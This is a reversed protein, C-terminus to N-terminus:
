SAAPSKTLSKSINRWLVKCERLLKISMKGGYGYSFNYAYYAWDCEAIVREEIAEYWYLINKDDNKICSIIYETVEEVRSRITLMKITMRLFNSISWWQKPLYEEGKEELVEKVICGGKTMYKGLYNEASKKVPVRKYSVWSVKLPPAGTELTSKYLTNNLIRIWIELVQTDSIVWEKTNKKRIANYVYHLHLGVFGQNKWRKPQIETVAVYHFIRGHRKYERKLEQFFKRVLESWNSCIYKEHQEGLRPLTVTSFQTYEGYRKLRREVLYCGNRVMKKGLSTIGNLGYRKTQSSEDPSDLIFPVAQRDGIDSFIRGDELEHERPIQRVELGDIQGRDYKKERSSKKNSACYGIGFEGNPYIIASYPSFGRDAKCNSLSNKGIGAVDGNYDQNFHPPNAKRFTFEKTTSNNSNVKSLM